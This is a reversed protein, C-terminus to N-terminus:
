VGAKPVNNLAQKAQEENKMQEAILTIERQRQAEAEAEQAKKGAEYEAEAKKLYAKLEEAKKQEALEEESVVEDHTQSLVLGCAVAIVEQFTGVFTAWDVPSGTIAPLNLVILGCVGFFGIAIALINQLMTNKTMVKKVRVKIKKFAHLFVLSWVGYAVTKYKNIYVVIRLAITCRFVLMLMFVGTLLALVCCAVDLLSLIINAVGFNKKIYALVEGYKEEVTITQGMYAGIFGIVATTSSFILSPITLQATSVVVDCVTFIIALVFITAYVEFKAM